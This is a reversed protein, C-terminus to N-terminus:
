VIIRTVGGFYEYAKIYCRLWNNSKMDSCAMVFIKMSFPLTVVFIYAKYVEGTYREFVEMTKDDWDIRTKEGTKHNIHM